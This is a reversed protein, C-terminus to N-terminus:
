RSQPWAPALTPGPRGRSSFPDRASPRGFFLPSPNSSEGAAGLPASSKVKISPLDSGIEVVAIDVAMYVNVAIGRNRLFWAVM